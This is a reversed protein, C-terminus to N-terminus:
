ESALPSAADSGLAKFLAAAEDYRGNKYLGDAVNFRVAPDQPRATAAREFAALAQPDAALGTWSEEAHHSLCM